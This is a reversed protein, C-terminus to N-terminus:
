KIRTKRLMAAGMGLMWFAYPTCLVQQYCFLNHGVYAALCLAAAMVAPCARRNKVFTLIGSLFIGLYAAGGAVGYCVMANLWENHANTLRDNGWMEYLQAAYESIGYFHSFYCDPGVGILKRWWPLGAFARVTFMWTRGRGSGWNEDFYLYGGHQMQDPLIGKLLGTTNAAVLFILVAGVAAAASLGIYRLRYGTETGPFSFGRISFWAYIGCFVVLLVGTLLSQSAFESLAELRVARTDFVSQLLGIVQFSFLMLLIVELFRGMERKGDFSLYFFLLLLVLLAFFASDSNQTVLTGFGVASFVGSFIRVAVRSSHYFWFLGFPFVTCVFSSYWTAQGLTSLFQLRQHMAMDTYLRLPDISFRHLIGLLFVIFAGTGMMYWVIRGGDWLRSVMFYIGLFLLQSVLGMYWGGSGWFAEAKDRAGLFSVIVMSFYFLVFKDVIGTHKWFDSLARQLSQGSRFNEPKRKEMSRRKMRFVKLREMVYLLMLFVLFFFSSILFMRYKHKGLGSYGNKMTLPLFIFLVFTYLLLVINQGRKIRKLIIPVGPETTQM